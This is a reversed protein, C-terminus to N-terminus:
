LFVLIEFSQEELSIGKDCIEKSWFRQAATSGGLPAEILDAAGPKGPLKAHKLDALGGAKRNSNSEGLGRCM